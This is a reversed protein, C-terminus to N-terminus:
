FWSKVRRYATGTLWCPNKSTSPISAVWLAAALYSSHFKVFMHSVMIDSTSNDYLLQRVNEDISWSSLPSTLDVSQSYPDVYPRSRSKTPGVRVVM